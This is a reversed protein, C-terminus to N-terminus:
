DVDFPARRIDRKSVLSSTSLSNDSQDKDDHQANFTKKQYEVEQKAEQAIQQFNTMEAQLTMCRAKEEMLNDAIYYCEAEDNRGM